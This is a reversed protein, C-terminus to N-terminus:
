VYKPVVFPKRYKRTLMKNAESDGRFRERAANWELKRGTRYSINAMHCHAASIRVDGVPANLDEGKRSRVADIFNAYHNGSKSVRPQAERNRGLFIQYSHYNPMVMYGESGYFINGTSNDSGQGLGGEHNSIWHRVEFVVIKNTDPYRFTALLNNPTQRDDDVDFEAGTAHVETPWDVGLGWRAKDMEHIGQNGIDGNGYDWMWHWDYHLRRRMLPKEPAPGLWLDYDVTDPPEGPGDVKGIPGRWKYCLGKAMYVEGIAGDRLKQIGEQMGPNSRSQSGVQVIRNYKKAAEVVKKGEFINHSGPKEVYVDKGAQCAWITALAHWHNPMAISVVDIDPDDFVRRLDTETRPLKKGAKEMDGLRRDLVAQDPDCFVALEVNDLGGFGQIHSGGRGNLGLIAVRIRDNAGRPRSNADQAYSRSPGTPVMMGAGMAVATAGSAGQIFKRRTVEGM